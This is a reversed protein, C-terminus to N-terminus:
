HQSPTWICRTSAKIPHCPVRCTYWHGMMLSNDPHMNQHRRTLSCFLITGWCTDPYMRINTSHRFLSPHTCFFTYSPITHSLILHIYGSTGPCIGINSSHKAGDLHLFCSIPLFLQRRLHRSCALMPWHGSSDLHFLNPHSPIPLHGSVNYHLILTWILYM